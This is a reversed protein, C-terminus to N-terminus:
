GVKRWPHSFFTRLIADGGSVVTFTLQKKGLRWRLMIPPPADPPAFVFRVHEGKVAYRGQLNPHFLHNRAEQHLQWRGDRLIWTLSGHNEALDRPSVGNATLDADTIAVRYTGNLASRDAHAASASAGLALALMLGSARKILQM